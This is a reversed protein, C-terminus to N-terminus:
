PPSLLTYYFPVTLFLCTWTFNPQRSFITCFRHKLGQITAVRDTKFASGLSCASRFTCSRGFLPFFNQEQRRESSKKKATCAPPAVRPALKSTGRSKSYNAITPRHPPTVLPAPPPLPHHVIDTIRQRRGKESPTVSGDLLVLWGCCGM